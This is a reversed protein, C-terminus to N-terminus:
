PVLTDYFDQGWFDRVWTWSPDREASRAPSGSTWHPAHQIARVLITMVRHGEDDADISVSNDPNLSM